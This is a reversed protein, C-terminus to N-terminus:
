RPSCDNGPADRTREPLDNEVRTTADPANASM